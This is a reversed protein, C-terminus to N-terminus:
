FRNRDPLQTSGSWSHPLNRGFKMVTAPGLLYEDWRQLYASIQEHECQLLGHEPTAASIITLYPFGTAFDQLQQIIKEEPIGKQQLQDLDNKTLM